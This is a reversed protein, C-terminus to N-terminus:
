LSGYFTQQLKQRLALQEQRIEQLTIIRSSIEDERERQKQTEDIMRRVTQQRETLHLVNRELLEVEEPKHLYHKDVILTGDRDLFLAKM